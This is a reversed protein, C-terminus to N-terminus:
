QSEVRIGSEDSMRKWNERERRYMTAFAEVSMPMWVGGAGQIWQTMEPRQMARVFEANLRAVIPAPTGAPAFFGSFSPLDINPYGAETMTPTDPFKPLRNPGYLGIAIARGPAPGPEDQHDGALAAAPVPDQPPHQWAPDLGPRMASADEADLGRMRAMAALAGPIDLEAPRAAPRRRSM